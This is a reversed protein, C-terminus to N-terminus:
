WIWGNKIEKIIPDFSGSKQLVPRKL